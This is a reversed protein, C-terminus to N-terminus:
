PSTESGCDLDAMAQRERAQRRRDARMLTLSEYRTGRYLWGALSADNKLKRALSRAKKALDVFVRQSIDHALDPAGVQRLAASYVLDTHRALIEGFAAESHHEAYEGLLQADSKGSKPQM